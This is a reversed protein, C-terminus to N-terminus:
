KDSRLSCIKSNASNIEERDTMREFLKWNRYIEWCFLGLNWIGIKVNTGWVPCCGKTRWKESSLTKKRNPTTRWFYVPITNKLDAKNWFWYIWQLHGRCTMKLGMLVAFALRIPLPLTDVNLSVTWKQESQDELNKM